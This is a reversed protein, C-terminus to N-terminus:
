QATDHTFSARPSLSHPFLFALFTYIPRDSVKIQRKAMWEHWQWITLKWLIRIVFLPQCLDFVFRQLHLSLNYVDIRTTERTRHANTERNFANLANCASHLVDAVSKGAIHYWNGFLALWCVYLWKSSETINNAMYSERDCRDLDCWLCCFLLMLLRCGSAIETELLKKQETQKMEQEGRENKGM